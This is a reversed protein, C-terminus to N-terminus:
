IKPGTGLPRRMPSTIPLLRCKGPLAGKVRSRQIDPVKWIIRRHDASHDSRSFVVRTNPDHVGDLDLVGGCDRGIKPCVDPDDRPDLDAGSGSGITVGALLAVTLIPVSIILAVWLGQRLTDFFIIENAM